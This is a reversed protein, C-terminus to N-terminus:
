SGMKAEGTEGPWSHIFNSDCYLSVPNFTGTCFYPGVPGLLIFFLASTAKAVGLSPQPFVMECYCSYCISVESDLFWINM